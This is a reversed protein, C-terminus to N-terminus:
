SFINLYQLAALGTWCDYMWKWCHETSHNNFQWCLLVSKNQIGMQNPM